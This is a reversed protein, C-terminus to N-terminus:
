QGRLEELLELSEIRTQILAAFYPDSTLSLAKDYDAIARQSDRLNEYANGRYFYALDLNPDLEIAKDLDAIARQRDGLLNYVQGRNLYAFAMNADLEIAEDYEKIAEQWRGEEVLELGRENHQEAESLEGGCAAALM